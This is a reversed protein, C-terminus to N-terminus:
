KENLEEKRKYRLIIDYKENIDSDLNSKKIGPIWIIKDTADVLLPYTERIAKPIKEEIFIEKVKKSGGLNKVCIRDGDERTRIYLPYTINASNFKITFNSKDATESVREIIYGNNLENYDELEIKYKEKQINQTFLLKDYERNVIIGCPLNLSFNNGTKINTVIADVHKNYIHDIDDGYIESLIKELVKTKIYDDLENFQKLDLVNNKYTNNMEKDVIRQIYNQAKSIETSYQLFKKHVNKEEQKLFPVIHHRYRNRTYNDDENTKDNFFPVQNELNYEVIEDKTYYILPKLFIYEKEHFVPTFGMYGKLNSGRTIRMLITEILDDGHHATAIYKTNYKDAVKKYFEYRKRRYYFENNTEKELEIGEFPINYTKCYNELFKYEEKSEERINHNVHACIIKYNNNYLLKLLCMSDPGSSCGVIIYDNNKDIISNLLKISKEM